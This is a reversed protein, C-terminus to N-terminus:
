SATLEGEKKTDESVPGPRRHRRARRERTRESLPDARPQAHIQWRHRTRAAPHRPRRGTMRTKGSVLFQPDQVILGIREARQSPGASPRTTRMTALPIRLQRQVDGTVTAGHLPTTAHLRRATTLEGEKKTDESVPVPAAIAAAAPAGSEHESLCLTLVLNRM